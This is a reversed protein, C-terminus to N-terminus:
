RKEEGKRVHAFPVPSPHVGGAVLGGIHSIDAVFYAGIEDAIRAYKEWQFIRTYGTGGSWILKPKHERALRYLQEWDVEGNQDLFYHM